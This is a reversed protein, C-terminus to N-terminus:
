RLKGSRRKLDLVLKSLRMRDGLPMSAGFESKIDADTLTLLTPGDIKEEIFLQRYEGLGKYDLEDVVDSLNWLTVDRAVPSYRDGVRLKEDFEEFESEPGPWEDEETEETELVAEKKEFLLKRSLFVVGGAIAALPFMVRGLFGVAMIPTGIFFVGAASLAFAAVGLMITSALVTLFIPALILPIIGFALMLSVHFVVNIAVGAAAVLSLGALGFM